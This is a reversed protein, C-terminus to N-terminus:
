ESKTSSRADAELSKQFECRQGSGVELQVWISIALNFDFYVNLAFNCRWSMGSYKEHSENKSLKKLRLSTKSAVCKKSPVFVKEHFIILFTKM